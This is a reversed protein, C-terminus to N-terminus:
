TIVEGTFIQRHTPPLASRSDRAVGRIVRLAKAIRQDRVMRGMEKETAGGPPWGGEWRINKPRREIRKEDKGEVGIEVRQRMGFVTPLRMQGGLRGM